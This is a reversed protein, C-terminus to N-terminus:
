KKVRTAKTQKQLRNGVVDYEFLDSESVNYYAGNGSEDYGFKKGTVKVVEVLRGLDDYLYEEARVQISHCYVIAMFFLGIKGSCFFFRTRQM